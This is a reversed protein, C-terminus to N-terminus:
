LHRVRDQGAGLIRLILVGEKTRRYYIVHSENALRRVGPRVLNYDTGIQPYVALTDLAQFLRHSYIRAQDIGFREITYDAIASLDAAARESLPHEPM